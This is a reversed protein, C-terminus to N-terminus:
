DYADAAAMGGIPKQELRPQAQHGKRCLVRGQRCGSFRRSSYKQGRRIAVAAATSLAIAAGQPPWRRRQTSVARAWSRLGPPVAAVEEAADGFGVCCGGIRTWRRQCLAEMARWM